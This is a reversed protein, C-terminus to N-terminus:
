DERGHYHRWALMCFLVTGVVGVAVGYLWENLSAPVGFILLEAVLVVALFIMTKM